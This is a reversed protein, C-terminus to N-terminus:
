EVFARFEVPGAHVLYADAPADTIHRLDETTLVGQRVLELVRPLEEPRPNDGACMHRYCDEALDRWDIANYRDLKAVRQERELYGYHKLRAPLRQCGHLLRQPVSSCHLNPSDKGNQRGFPTAMFRFESALKLDDPVGPRPIFPRFLSPRWFHDYIRDVRATNRDNWLFVIKLSYSWQDQNQAVHERIIDAGRKELVEDGDVCLIWEPDCQRLIQDLLWNKDRAENFGEFPSPFVTVRDGFSECIAVTDDTSHDDMVFIRSCLPLAAELVERMDRSENKVRSMGVFQHTERTFPKDGDPPCLIREPKLVVGELTEAEHFIHNGRIAGCNSCLWHDPTVHDTYTHM